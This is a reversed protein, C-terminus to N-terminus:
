RRKWTAAIRRALLNIATQHVSPRLAHNRFGFRDLIAASRTQISRSQITPAPQVIPSQPGPQPEGFPLGIRQDAIHEAKTGSRNPEEDDRVYSEGVTALAPACARCGCGPSCELGGIPSDNEGVRVYGM